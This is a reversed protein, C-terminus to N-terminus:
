DKNIRSDKLSKEYAKEIGETSKLLKAVEEDAKVTIVVPDLQEPREQTAQCVVGRYKKRFQAALKKVNSAQLMMQDYQKQGRAISFFEIDNRMQNSEMVLRHHHQVFENTCPAATSFGSITLLLMWYRM